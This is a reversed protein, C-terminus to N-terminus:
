LIPHLFKTFSNDLIADDLYRRADSRRVIFNLAEYLQSEGIFCRRRPSYAERSDSDRHSDIRTAGDIRRQSASFVQLVCSSRATDLFDGRNRRTSLDDYTKSDFALFSRPPIERGRKRAIVEEVPAVDVVRSVGEPPTTSVRPSLTFAGGRFYMYTPIYSSSNGRTTM